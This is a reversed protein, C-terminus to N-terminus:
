FDLYFASSLESSPLSRGGRGIVGPCVRPIYERCVQLVVTPVTTAAVLTAKLSVWSGGGAKRGIRRGGSEGEWGRGEGGGGRGDMAKREEWRRGERRGGGGRM